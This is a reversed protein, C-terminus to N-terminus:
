RKSWVYRRRAPPKQAYKSFHRIYPTDFELKTIEDLDIKSPSRKRKGLVDFHEFLLCRGSVGSAYGLYFDKIPENEDECQVALYKYKAGATLIAAGMSSLDPRFRLKLGSLLKEAEYMHHWRHEIKGHRVDTVDATRIVTYGVPFFDYFSLLLTTTAWSDIVYGDITTSGPFRRAVKVMTKGQYIKLPNM